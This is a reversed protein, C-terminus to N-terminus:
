YCSVSQEIYKKNYNVEAKFHNYDQATSSHFLMKVAVQTGDISGYYVRGYGGNGLVRVFNNTM